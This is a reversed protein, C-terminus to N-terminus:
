GVAGSIDEFVIEDPFVYGLKDRAAREIFDSEKGNALLNEYEKVHQSLLAKERELSQQQRRLDLLKLLTSHLGYVMYVAFGLLVIRLILSKRKRSGKKM